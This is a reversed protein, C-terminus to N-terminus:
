IPKNEYKLKGTVPLSAKIARVHPTVHLKAMVTEINRLYDIIYYRDM